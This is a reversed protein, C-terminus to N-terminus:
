QREVYLVDLANVSFIKEELPYAGVVPVHEVYFDFFGNTLCYKKSEIEKFAIQGKFVIKFKAV